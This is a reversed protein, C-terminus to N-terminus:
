QESKWAQFMLIPWLKATWDRSGLLHEKLTQQIIDSNFIGDQTLHEDSLLDKAWESLPGRLWLGIPITFGRKPREIIEPPINQYLVQRLAWKGKGDRIKMKVPIRCSLSIVKPDLFPTRTELSVGMAARDVKCLIDDPLYSRMDQFMM